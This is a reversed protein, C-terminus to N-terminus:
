ILYKNILETQPLDDMYHKEWITTDPITQQVKLWGEEHEVVVIQVKDWAKVAVWVDAMNSLEFDSYKLNMAKIHDQHMCMVGTGGSDVQWDGKITKLCHYGIIKDRYYSGIPREHLVRGHLSVICNHDVSKEIMYKVYDPPYILDDDCTFLYGEINEVGHFKAADGTSNDMLKCTIRWSRNLFDPVKNYNNLYVKIFDVQDKLSEVTRELLKVRDPISAIQATVM